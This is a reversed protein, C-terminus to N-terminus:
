NKFVKCTTEDSMWIYGTYEGQPIVLSLDEVFCDTTKNQNGEM